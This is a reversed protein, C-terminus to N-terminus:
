WAPSEGTFIRAGTTRQLANNPLVTAEGLAEGSASRTAGGRLDGHQDAGRRGLGSGRVTEDHWV